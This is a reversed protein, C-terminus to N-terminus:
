RDNKFSTDDRLYLAPFTFSVKFGNTLYVIYSGYPGCSGEWTFMHGRIISKNM